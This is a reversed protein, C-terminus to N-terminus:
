STSLSVCRDFYFNWRLCDLIHHMWAAVTGYFPGGFVSPAEEEHKGVARRYCGADQWPM